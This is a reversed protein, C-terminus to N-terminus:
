TIVGTDRLGQIADPNHGFERLIADTDQGLAPAPRRIEAPTNQFRAAPRPERIAGMQPHHSEVLCDNAVVPEFDPVEELRLIPGCPVDAEQLRALLDATTFRTTDARMEARFAALNELRAALTAFRPDALVEPRDIAILLNTWQEETVTAVALCGDSCEFPEYTSGISPLRLAGEDGVLMTDAHGDPWLFSLGADLMSLRVHQGGAGRERALLAATIAQAATLATTKDVWAQRMFKPSTPNQVYGAGTMGQLIHDYAPRSAYPGKEGFASISVYVLDPHHGRLEPEGLGLREIVGPRFNQVFVDCEAALSKVIERGEDKQLNIALSRKSRNSSAFMASIGGRSSGLYRMVDGIGPPEVKIVQAGQDALMMTAMPGTIMTTLDLIRLGDLPGAM